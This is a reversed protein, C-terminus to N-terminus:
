KSFSSPPLGFKVRINSVCSLIHLLSDNMLGRDFEEEDNECLLETSVKDISQLLEIVSEQLPNGVPSYGEGIMRNAYDEEKEIVKSLKEKSAFYEKLIDAMSIQNM